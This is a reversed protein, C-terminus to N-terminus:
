SCLKTPKHHNLIKASYRIGHTLTNLKKSCMLHNSHCNNRHSIQNIIIYQFFLVFSYVDYIKNVRRVWRIYINHIYSINLCSRFITILPFNNTSYSLIFVRYLTRERVCVPGFNFHIADSIFNIFKFPFYFLIPTNYFIAHKIQWNRIIDM